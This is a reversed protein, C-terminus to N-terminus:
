RESFKEDRLSPRTKHPCLVRGKRKLRLAYEMLRLPKGYTRRGAVGTAHQM